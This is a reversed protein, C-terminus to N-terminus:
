ADKVQFIQGGCRLETIGDIPVSRWQTGMNSLQGRDGRAPDTVFEHVTLLHHDAPNFRQGGGSVGKRVGVRATMRRRSGTSRKTFTVSFLKGGSNRIMRAAETQTIQTM